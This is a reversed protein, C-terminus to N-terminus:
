FCAVFAAFATEAFVKAGESAWLAIGAALALGAGATFAVRAARSGDPGRAATRSTSARGDRM